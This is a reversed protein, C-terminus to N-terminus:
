SFTDASRPPLRRIMRLYNSLEDLARGHGGRASRVRLNWLECTEERALRQILARLFEEHARDEAFLDVTLSSM